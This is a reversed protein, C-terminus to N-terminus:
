AVVTTEQVFAPLGAHDGASPRDLCLQQPAAGGTCHARQASSGAATCAEGPMKPMAAPAPAKIGKLENLESQVHDLRDEVRLAHGVQAYLVTLLSCM